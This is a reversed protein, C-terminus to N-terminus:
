SARDYKRRKLDRTISHIYIHLSVSRDSLSIKSLINLDQRMYIWNSHGISCYFLIPQNTQFMEATDLCASKAFQCLNIFSQVQLDM